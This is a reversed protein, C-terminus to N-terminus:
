FPALHSSGPISDATQPSNKPNRATHSVTVLWTLDKSNQDGTEMQNVRKLIQIRFGLLPELDKGCGLQRSYQRGKSGIEFRITRM